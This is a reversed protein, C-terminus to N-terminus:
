GKLDWHCVRGRLSLRRKRWQRRERGKQIWLCVRPVAVPCLHSSPPCILYACTSRPPILGHEEVRIPQAPSQEGELPTPDIVLMLRLVGGSGSRCSLEFRRRHQWRKSGCSCQGKQVQMRWHCHRLPGCGNPDLHHHRAGDGRGGQSNGGRWGRM